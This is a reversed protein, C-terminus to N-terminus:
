QCWIMGWDKKNKTKLLESKIQALNYFVTPRFTFNDGFQLYFSNFGLNNLHDLSKFTLDNNESSWEFCILPIKNNLSLLCNYEGGEVDIKILDPVGYDKILQDISITSQFIKNYSKNGFRFKPNTLWDLNTTSLLNNELSQYFEIILESNNTVVLNLPTINKSNCNLKLQKFTEPCGEIAIIKNSNNNLNKLSWYGYHAGIDFFLM